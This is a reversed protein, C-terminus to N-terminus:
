MITVFPYPKRHESRLRQAEFAGHIICALTALALWQIQDEEEIVETELRCSLAPNWLPARAALWFAPLTKYLGRRIPPMTSLTHSVQQISPWIVRVCAM